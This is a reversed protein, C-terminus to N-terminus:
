YYFDSHKMGSRTEPAPIVTFVYSRDAAAPCSPGPPWFGKSCSSTSYGINQGFAVFDGTSATTSGSVFDTSARPRSTLASIESSTITHDYNPIGKFTVKWGTSLPSIGGGAPSRTPAATPKAAASTPIYNSTLIDTYASFISSYYLNTNEIWSGAHYCSYDKNYTIAVVCTQLLVLLILSFFIDFISSCSM